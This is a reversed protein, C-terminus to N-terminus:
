TGEQWSSLYRKQEPTLKDINVKMSKLKLAAIRQDIQDPIKYVKKELKRHHKAIYEAALAQNAFSM